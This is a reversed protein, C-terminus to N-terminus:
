KPMTIMPFDDTRFPTMPLGEKSVVNCIPNNDWAYRVAVPVSVEAASVEIRNGETIKAAAPLWKKDAGCIAFGRTENIDSTVLGGGVHDFSLIAKGDKIEMAKYEPSRHEIKYGYDKALAWRALREAVARKERPHIDNAQGLDIIVAQGTNKVDRLTHSQAERLEAWDSDGPQRTVDQFDALQVFYFPFDGQKWDKRWSSILLTMLDNYQYARGVNTEGQYWIVGRMGYGLVPFLGGAYINGPRERLAQEVILEAKKTPDTEAAAERAQWEGIHKKFRPDQDLLDRRVWAEAASGGWSNDILGVPVKLVDSLLKGYYYGIASFGGATQPSCSEWKGSFSTQLEQTGHHPITVFRIEPQDADLAALEAGFSSNVDWEMNSQGACIWVEGVLIEKLSIESSGTVKMEKPEASAPMPALRVEWRGSKDAKAKHSQDGIKVTVDVEPDDWGWILNEQKQQLVMYDGIITPLKTEAGACFALLLSLIAQTKM